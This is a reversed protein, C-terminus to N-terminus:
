ADNKYASEGQEPDIRDGHRSEQTQEGTAQEEFKQEAEDEGYEEVLEDALDADKQVSQGHWDEVRSDTGPDPVQPDAASESNQDDPTNDNTM